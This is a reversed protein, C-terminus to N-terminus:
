VQKRDLLSTKSSKLRTVSLFLFYQLVLLNSDAAKLLFMSETKNWPEQLESVQLWQTNAFVQLTFRYLWHLGDAGTNNSVQKITNSMETLATALELVETRRPPHSCLRVLSGNILNRAQKSEHRYVCTESKIQVAQSQQQGLVSLFTIEHNGYIGYVLKWCKHWHLSVCM